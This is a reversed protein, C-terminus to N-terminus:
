IETQSVHSCGCEEYVAAGRKGGLCRSRCVRRGRNFGSEATAKVSAPSPPSPDPVGQERSM